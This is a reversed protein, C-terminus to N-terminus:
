LPVGLRGLGADVKVYVEVPGAASASVASALETDYVTPVLGHSLLHKVDRAVYGGFMIVPIRVGAARVQIAEPVNGTFLAFAGLAEFAKATEVAGFGYADGKISPILKTGPGIRRAIERYNARLQESDCETEAYGELNPM